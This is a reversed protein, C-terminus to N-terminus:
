LGGCPFHLSRLLIAVSSLSSAEQVCSAFRSLRHKPLGVLEMVSDAGRGESTERVVQEVDDDPSLAVDAGMSLALRRRAEVRDIAILHKAGFTQRLPHSAAGGFRM